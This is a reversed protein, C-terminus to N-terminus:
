RIMFWATKMYYQTHYTHGARMCTVRYPSATSSYSYLIYLLLLLGWGGFPPKQQTDHTVTHRARKRTVIIDSLSLACAFGM